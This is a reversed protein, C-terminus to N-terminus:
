ARGRALIADRIADSIQDCVWTRIDETVSESTFLHKQAMFRKVCPKLNHLINAYKRLWVKSNVLSVKSCSFLVVLASKVTYNLQYKYFSM